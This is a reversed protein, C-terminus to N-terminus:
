TSKRLDKYLAEVIEAEHLLIAAKLKKLQGIRFGIPRTEGSNFLQLQGAFIEAITFQDEGLSSQISQQQITSNM